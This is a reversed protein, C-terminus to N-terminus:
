SFSADTAAAERGPRGRLREGKLFGELFVGFFLGLATWTVIITPYFRFSLYEAVTPPLPYNWQEAIEGLDLKVKRPILGLFKPDKHPEATEEFSAVASELQQWTWSPTGAITHVSADVETVEIGPRHSSAFIASLIVAIGFSHALAVAVIQRVHRREEPTITVVGPQEARDVMERTVFFRTTFFSVCALMLIAPTSAHLPFNYSHDFEVILAMPVATLRALRPLLCPFWYGPLESKRRLFSAVWHVWQTFALGATVIMGLTLVFFGLGEWEHMEHRDFWAAIAFPALITLSTLVFSTTVAYLWRFYFPWRGRLVAKLSEVDLEATMWEVFYEEFKAREKEFPPPATNIQDTVRRVRPESDLNFIFGTLVLTSLTAIRADKTGPDCFFLWFRGKDNEEKLERAEDCSWSRTDDFLGQLHQLLAIILTREPPHLGSHTRVKKELDAATDSANTLMEKRKDFDSIPLELYRSVDDKLETLARNYVGLPERRTEVRALEDLGDTFAIVKEAAISDWVSEQTLDVFFGLTESLEWLTASQHATAQARVDDRLLRVHALIEPLDIESDHDDRSRRIRAVHRRFLLVTARQKDDRIRPLLHDFIAEDPGRLTVQYLLKAFDRRKHLKEYRVHLDIERAIASAIRSSAKASIMALVYGPLDDPKEDHSRGRYEVFRQIEANATEAVEAPLSSLLKWVIKMAEEDNLSVAPTESFIRRLPDHRILQPIDRSLAHLEAALVRTLLVKRLTAETSWHEFLATSHALLGAEFAIGGVLCPAVAVPTDDPQVDADAPLRCIRQLNAPSPDRLLERAAYDRRAEDGTELVSTVIRRFCSNAVVHHHVEDLGRLDRPSTLQEHLAQLAPDILDDHRSDPLLEPLGRYCGELIGLNSWPAPTRLSTFLPKLAAKTSSADHPKLRVFTMATRLTAVTARIQANCVTPPGAITRPIADVAGAIAEDLEPLDWEIRRLATDITRLLSEQYRLHALVVFDPAEDDIFLLRAADVLLAASALPLNSQQRALAPLIRLLDPVEYLADEVEEWAVTEGSCLRTVKKTIPEALRQRFRAYADADGAIALVMLHRRELRDFYEKSIKAREAFVEPEEKNEQVVALRAPLPFRAAPSKHLKLLGGLGEVAADRTTPAGVMLVSILAEILPEVVLEMVLHPVDDPTLALRTALKCAFQQQLTGQLVLEPFMSGLSHLTPRHGGDSERGMSVIQEVAAILLERREGKRAAAYRLPLDTLTEPAIRRGLDVYDTDKRRRPRRRRQTTSLVESM